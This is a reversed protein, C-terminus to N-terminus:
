EPIWATCRDHIRQEMKCRCSNESLNCGTRDTDLETRKFRRGTQRQQVANSCSKCRRCEHYRQGYCVSDIGSKRYRDTEPKSEMKFCCITQGTRLKSMIYWDSAGSCEYKYNQSNLFTTASTIGEKVIQDIDVKDSVQSNDTVEGAKRAKIRHSTEKPTLISDSNQYISDAVQVIGDERYIRNFRQETADAAKVVRANFTGPAIGTLIMVFALLMALIRNGLTMKKM